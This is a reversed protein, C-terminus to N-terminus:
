LLSKSTVPDNNFDSDVPLRLFELIAEKRSKLGVEDAIVKWDDGHKM